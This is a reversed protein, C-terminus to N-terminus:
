VLVTVQRENAPTGCHKGLREILNAAAALQRARRYGFGLHAKKAEFYAEACSFGAALSLKHKTIRQIAKAVDLLATSSRELWNSVIRECSSLESQPSGM